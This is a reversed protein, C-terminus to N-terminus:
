FNSEIAEISYSYGVEPLESLTVRYILVPDEEGPLGVRELLRREDVFTQSEIPTQMTISLNTDVWHRDPDFCADDCEGDGPKEFYNLGVLYEGPVVDECFQQYHVPGGNDEDDLNLRGLGFTNNPYIHNGDPEFVHLHISTEELTDSNYGTWSLSSSWALVEQELGYNDLENAQTELDNLIKIKSPSNEAMYSETFYHGTEDFPNPEDPFNVVNGPLSGPIRAMTKDSVLTTHAGNKVVFSAPSGISIM